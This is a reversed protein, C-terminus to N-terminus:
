VGENSGTLAEVFADPQEIHPVHGARDIITLPWGLRASTAQAHDLPAMRDHRGWALATPVDIRRLEAEPIRRSGAKILQRMTRKVHAVSARAILYDDVVEHREPDHRRTRDPDLYPWRNFRELSRRSPRVTFRLAAFLFAPSPRFPGLGTADVLVLRRLLDSHQAAFRATLAAPMSHAIVTPPEDCTTGILRRLWRAFTEADISDMPESAGLGPLDPALVRYRSCLGPLVRWWLLAGAQTGGHLLLLAPGQGGELLSTAIGDVDVRRAAVPLDALLRDRTSDQPTQPRM